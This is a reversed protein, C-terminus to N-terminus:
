AVSTGTDVDPAGVEQLAQDGRARARGLVLQDAILTCIAALSLGAAAFAIAAMYGGTYKLSIAWMLPGTGTSLM